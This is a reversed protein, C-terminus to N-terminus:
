DMGVFNLRHLTSKAYNILMFLRLTYKFLSTVESGLDSKHLNSTEGKLVQGLIAKLLFYLMISNFFMMHLLM